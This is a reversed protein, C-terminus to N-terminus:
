WVSIPTADEWRGRPSFSSARKAQGFICFTIINLKSDCFYGFFMQVTFNSVSYKDFFSVCKWFQQQIFETERGFLICNSLHSLSDFYHFSVPLSSCPWLYCSCSLVVLSFLSSILWFIISHFWHVWPFLFFQRANSPFLISPLHFLCLAFSVSLSAPTRSVVLRRDGASLIFAGNKKREKKLLLIQFSGPPLCFFLYCSVSRLAWLISLLHGSGSSHRPSRCLRASEVIIHQHPLFSPLLLLPM